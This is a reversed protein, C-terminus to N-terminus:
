ACAPLLAVSRARLRIPKSALLRAPKQFVSSADRLSTSCRRELPSSLLLVADIRRRVSTATRDQSRAGHRTFYQFCFTHSITLRSVIRYSTEFELDKTAFERSRSRGLLEQFKREKKKKTTGRQTVDRTRERAREYLLSSARTYAYILTCLRIHTRTYVANACIRQRFFQSFSKSNAPERDITTADSSKATRTAVVFTKRKSLAFLPM